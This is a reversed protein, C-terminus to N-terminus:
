FLSAFLYDLGYLKRRTLFSRIKEIPLYLNVLSMIQIMIVLLFIIKLSDYIIYDLVEKIHGEFHFIDKTLFHALVQFPYFINM